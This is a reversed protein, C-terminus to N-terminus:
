WILTIATPVTHVKQNLTHLRLSLPMCSLLTSMSVPIMFSDRNASNRVSVTGCSTSCDMLLLAQSCSLLPTAMKLMVSDINM